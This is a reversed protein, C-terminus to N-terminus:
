RCDGGVREPRNFILNTLASQRAQWSHEREVFERAKLSALSIDREYWHELLNQLANPDVIPAAILRRPWLEIVEYGSVGVTAMPNHENMPSEDITILPLGAAQCELLPLGLGEWRSPQVCVDGDRYLDANNMACHRLEANDPLPPLDKTQSWILFPVRPMKRAVDIIWEIGKRRVATPTGDRRVPHGFDMGNIFVFRRCKDRQRFPIGELAIPWPCLQLDWTFGFRARWHDLMQFTRATPCIMLDVEHLWALGPHLWEWNPICVIRKGMQRAKEPLWHFYPTEIFLLIDIRGLFELITRNRTAPDNEDNATVDEPCLWDTIPLRTMLDRNQHGLGRLNNVGFLGVRPLHGMASRFYAGIRNVIRRTRPILNFRELARDAEQHSWDLFTESWALREAARVVDFAETGSRIRKTVADCVLSAVVGNPFQWSSNGPDGSAGADVPLSDVPRRFHQATIMSISRANVTHATQGARQRPKHGLRRRVSGRPNAGDSTATVGYAGPSKCCALCVDETVPIGECDNIDSLFSALECCNIGDAGRTRYPCRDPTRTGLNKGGTAHLFSSEHRHEDNLYKAAGPM